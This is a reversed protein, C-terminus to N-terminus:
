AGPGAFRPTREDGGAAAIALTVGRHAPATREATVAVVPNVPQEGIAVVRPEFAARGNDVPRLRSLDPKAGIPRRGRAGSGGPRRKGPLM